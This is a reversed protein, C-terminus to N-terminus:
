LKAAPLLKDPTQGLRATCFVIWLFSQDELLLPATEAAQREAALAEPYKHAYYFAGIRCVLLNRDFVWTPTFKDGLHKLAADAIALGKDLDRLKADPQDIYSNALQQAGAAYLTPVDAFEKLIWEGLERTKVPERYGLSFVSGIYGVIGRQYRSDAPFQKVYQGIGALVAPYDKAAMLKNLAPGTAAYVEAESRGSQAVAPGALVVLGLASVVGSCARLRLM